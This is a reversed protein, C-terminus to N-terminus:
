GNKGVHLHHDFLIQKMTYNTPSRVLWSFYGYVICKKSVPEWYNYSEDCDSINSWLAACMRAALLLRFAVYGSPTWPMSVYVPYEEVHKKTVEQSSERVSDFCLASLTSLMLISVASM